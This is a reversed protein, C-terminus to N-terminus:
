VQQQMGQPPAPTYKNDKVLAFIGGLLLLVFSLFGWLTFLCAVASILMMVGAAVNNSNVIAAGITGVVGSVFIVSGFILFINIAFSSTQTFMKDYDEVSFETGDAYEVTEFEAQEFATDMMAPMVTKFIVGSGIIFLGTLIALVGGIIGIIKSAKRM